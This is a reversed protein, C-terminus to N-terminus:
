EVQAVIRLDTTVTYDGIAASWHTVDFHDCLYKTVDTFSECTNFATHIENLDYDLFSGIVANVVEPARFNDSLFPNEGASYVTEYSTTVRLTGGINDLDTVGAAFLAIQLLTQRATIPTTQTM